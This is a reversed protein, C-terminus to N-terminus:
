TYIYGVTFRDVNTLYVTMDHELTVAVGHQLNSHSTTNIQLCKKKLGGFQQARSARLRKSQFVHFASSPRSVWLFAVWSFYIVYKLDSLVHFRQGHYYTIFKLIVLINLRQEYSFSYPCCPFSSFPENRSYWAELM